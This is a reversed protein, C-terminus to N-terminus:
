VGLVVKLDNAMESLEAEELVEIVTEWTRPSRGKGELWLM